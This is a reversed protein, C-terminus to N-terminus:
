EFVGGSQRPSEKNSYSRHLVVKQAQIEKKFRNQVADFRRDMAAQGDSAAGGFWAQEYKEGQEHKWPDILHLKAPNLSCLIDESYGGEHVGIEACVSRRPMRHLLSDRGTELVQGRLRRVIKHVGPVRKSFSKLYMKM